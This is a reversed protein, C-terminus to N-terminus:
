LSQSPRCRRLRLRLRQTVGAPAPPPPPPPQLSPRAPACRHCRLLGPTSSERLPALACFACCAATPCVEIEEQGESTRSVAGLGLLKLLAQQFTVKNNSLPSCFVRARWRCLCPCAHLYHENKKCRLSGLALYGLIEMRDGSGVGRQSLRPRGLRDIDM